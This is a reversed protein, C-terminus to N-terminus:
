DTVRSAIRDNAFPLGQSPSHVQQLIDDLKEDAFRGESFAPLKERTVFM